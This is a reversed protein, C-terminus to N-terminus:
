GESYMMNDDPTTAHEAEYYMGPEPQAQMRAGMYEMVRALNLSGRPQFTQAALWLSDEGISTNQLIQDYCRKALAGAHENTAPLVAGIEHEGDWGILDGPRSLEESLVRVVQLLHERKVGRGLSIRMVTLPSFERVARRCELALMHRYWHETAIGTNPDVALLPENAQSAAQSMSHNRLMIFLSLTVVLALGALLRLGLSTEGSATLALVLANLVMLLTVLYRSRKLQEVFVSDM